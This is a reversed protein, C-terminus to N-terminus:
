RAQELGKVTERREDALKKLAEARRWTSLAVLAHTIACCALLAAAARWGGPVDDTVQQWFVGVGIMFFLVSAFAHGTALTGLRPPDLSGVTIMVASTGLAGAWAWLPFAAEVNALDPPSSRHSVYITLYDAVRLVIHAVLAMNLLFFPQPGLSVLLMPRGQVLRQELRRRRM